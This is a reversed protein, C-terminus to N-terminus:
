ICISPLPTLTNLDWALARLGLSGTETVSDYRPLKILMGDCPQSGVRSQNWFKHYSVQDFVPHSIEANCIGNVLVAMPGGDAPGRLMQYSFDEDGAGADVVPILRQGLLPKRVYHSLSPFKQVSLAIFTGNIGFHQFYSDSFTCRQDQRRANQASERSM